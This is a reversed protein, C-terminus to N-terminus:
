GNAREFKYELLIENLKTYKRLSVMAKSGDIMHVYIHDISAVAELNVIYSKHCRYFGYPIIKTELDNIGDSCIYDKARTHICINRKDTEIYLIDKVVLEIIGANVVKVEIKHNRGLLKDAATLAEPIEESMSAKDIYRFAEVIYGRRSLETHMTFMIVICEPYIKKYEMATQFGDLRNMEVDLFVIDYEMRNQLFEEGNRYTRVVVQNTQYFETVVKAALDRWHKEDDVIAVKMKGKLGGVRNKQVEM